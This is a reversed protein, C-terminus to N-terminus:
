STVQSAANLQAVIGEYQARCKADLQDISNTPETGSGYREIIKWGAGVVYVGNDHNDTDLEALTGIGVSNGGPGFFECILGCLRAMGYSADCAPDRYGRSQAVELFALVSEAGGNWHLYIGMKKDSTTIVARNGM